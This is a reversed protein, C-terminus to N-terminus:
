RHRSNHKKGNRLLYGLFLGSLMAIGLSKIPQDNVYDEVTDKLNVSKDKVNEFSDQIRGSARDKVHVATNALAEKIKSLDGYIDFDNKHMRHKTHTAMINGGQKIDNIQVKM